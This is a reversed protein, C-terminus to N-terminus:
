VEDYLNALSKTSLFRECGDWDFLCWAIPFNYFYDSLHLTYSQKTASSTAMTYKLM